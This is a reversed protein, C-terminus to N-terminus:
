LNGFLLLYIFGALVMFEVIGMIILLMWQRGTLGATRPAPPRSAKAMGEPMEATGNEDFEFNLDAPDFPKTEEAAHFIARARQPAEGPTAGAVAAAAAAAAAATAASVPMTPPSIEYVPTEVKEPQLSFPKKRPNILHDVVEHAAEPTLLTRTQLLAAAYQKVADSLVVRVIPRVTEIHVSPSAAVLIPEVVGPLFVGQRNLYVQVARALRAVRTILNVKAPTPRNHHVVSWSDGRAEYFGTVASVYLVYVGPPGVLILPEIIQSNELNLNRILTYGKGLVKELQAIVSKQAEVEEPWSAGYELVSQYRKILDFNGKENQFPTKDIVKM